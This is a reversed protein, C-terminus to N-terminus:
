GGGGRPPSRPAAALRADFRDEVEGLYAALTNGAQEIAARLDAELRDIRSVLNAEGQARAAALRALEAELYGRLETFRSAEAQDALARSAELERAHRRADFLVTTQLYAIFVLFLVAIACAVALMVVGLPAEVTTFVLSLTAPTTFASWNIAAFVALAALALLLALTRLQM